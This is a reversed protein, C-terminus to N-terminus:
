VCFGKKFLFSAFEKRDGNFYTDVLSEMKEIVHTEVDKIVTYRYLKGIREHTIIGKVELMRLALSLTSYAMNKKDMGYHIEKSYSAGSSWLFRLISLELDNM